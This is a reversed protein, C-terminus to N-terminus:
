HAAGAALGAFGTSRLIRSNGRSEERKRRSSAFGEFLTRPSVVPPDFDASESTQLSRVQRLQRQLFTDTPWNWPRVPLKEGHYPAGNVKSQWFVLQWFSMDERSITESNMM